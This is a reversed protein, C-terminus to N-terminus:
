AALPLKLQESEAKTTRVTPLPGGWRKREAVQYPYDTINGCRMYWCDLAWKAAHYQATTVESGPENYARDLGAFVDAQIQRLQDSITM